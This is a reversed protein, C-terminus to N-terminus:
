NQVTYSGTRDVHAVNSWFYQPGDPDVAALSVVALTQGKGTAGKHYLGNLDYDSAFDSPLNCANPLGTLALCANSNGQKPKTVATNIHTAPSSYPSYNTLGLIALVYHSLRYPLLPSNVNGHIGNQARVGPQGHQGPRAPVDYQKQTISLAKNYEAATGTTSVDVGDAYVDSKIGFSALYSTLTSIVALSQGYAGAFQSVSLYHRVGHTVQSELAPLNRERLIFSVTEPTDGPTDGFVTAGKLQAATIGSAVKEPTNPGPTAASAPGALAALPTVAAAVGLVIGASLRATRKLIM